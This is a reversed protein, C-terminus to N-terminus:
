GGGGGGGGGWYEPPWGVTMRIFLFLEPPDKQGLQWLLVGEKALFVMPIPLKIQHKMQQQKMPGKASM